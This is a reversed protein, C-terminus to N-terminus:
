RRLGAVKFNFVDTSTGNRLNSSSRSNVRRQELPLSLVICRFSQM